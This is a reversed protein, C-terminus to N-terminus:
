DRPLPLTPSSLASRGATPSTTELHKSDLVLFAPNRGHRLALAAFADAVDFTNVEFPTWALSVLALGVVVCLLGGGVLGQSHGAAARIQAALIRRRWPSASSASVSM